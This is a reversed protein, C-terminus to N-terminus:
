LRPISLGGDVPIVAGTAFAMRGQVLPVVIQAIDSAEGWRKAPVLGGQILGTYKGAAGETMPTRIIGPRLDFVGIGAAALRVAFLQAIMAAGAKSICYEAREVSVSRASVSTVFVLSRYAESPAAIMRRAVEQALFFTGRLNIDLTFDFNEPQVELMDGRIRAPVGANQILSAVPGLRDQVQDLLAPVGEIRALDHQLYRADAGLQEMAAVVVPDDAPRESVIALAFGDDRLAHAIGLGIGQQGGTILAVPKM